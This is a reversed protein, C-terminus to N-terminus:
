MEDLSDALEVWFSGEMARTFLRFHGLQPCDYDEARLCFCRIHAKRYQALLAEVAAPPALWDDDTYYALLPQEISAYRRIDLGHVPDFLYDRHRGWRAWEAAISAPIDENGLGFLRMPFRSSLTSIVPVLLHWMLWVKLKDPHPYHGWWGSPSAILVIGDLCQASPALGLLQGGISHGLMLLRRPTHRERAWQIMAEIDQCGWDRLRIPHGETEWEGPDMGRYTFRIVRYGRRALFGALARYFGTPVALAGAIIIADGNWGSPPATLEAILRLGDACRVGHRTEVPDPTVSGTRPM